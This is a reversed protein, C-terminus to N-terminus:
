RPGMFWAAMRRADDVKPMEAGTDFTRKGDRTELTVKLYDQDIGDDGGVTRTKRDVKLERIESPAYAQNTPVQGLIADPDAGAFQMGWSSGARLQAGVQGFLGSGGVKAAERARAVEASILEKTGEALILRHTTFVLAYTKSAFFSVKTQAAPIIGVVQEGMM